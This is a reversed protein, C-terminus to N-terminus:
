WCTVSCLVTKDNDHKEMSDAVFSYWFPTKCSPCNCEIYPYKSENVYYDRTACGFGKIYEHQCYPCKIKEEIGFM